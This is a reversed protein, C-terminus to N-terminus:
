GGELLRAAQLAMVQEEDTPIRWLSVCSGRADFRSAGAANAEADVSVGLWGCAECIRARIGASNEGIGATFVLADLGGLAAALSGIERACRYVFYEIALRAEPSDSAELERMDRIGGSLGSLGSRRYLLDEIAEADHGQRLLYLVVGPDLAGCRTGMPVGDLATFGMTTAVSRGKCVATLSAGNGLHAIIARGDAAEPSLEALRGSVYECSLGHFGYRRVGQARIEAPLAYAQAVETQNRHFATDFCAVQATDPLAEAIARISAIGQPQHLPALPVLHELAELVGENVRVPGTFHEGGHVIRHAAATVERAGQLRERLREVVFRLADRHNGAVAAPLREEAGRGGAEHWRLRADAGIGSVSGRLREVLRGEKRDFCALKIGSSGVNLSLVAGAM